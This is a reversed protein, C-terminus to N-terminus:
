PSCLSSGSSNSSGSSLYSSASSNSSTRRHEDKFVHNVLSKKLVMKIDTHYIKNIFNLCKEKGCCYLKMINENLELSGAESGMYGSDTRNILKHKKTKINEVILYWNIKKDKVFKEYFKTGIAEDIKWLFKLEEANFSNLILYIFYYDFDYIDNNLNLFDYALFYQRIMYRYYKLKDKNSTEILDDYYASVFCKTQHIFGLLQNDEWEEKLLFIELLWLFYEKQKETMGKKLAGDILKKIKLIIISKMSFTIDSLVKIVQHLNEYYQEVELFNSLQLLLDFNDFGTKIVDMAKKYAIESEAKPFQSFISNYFALNTLTFLISAKLYNNM